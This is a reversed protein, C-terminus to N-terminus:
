TFKGIMQDLCFILYNRKIEPIRSHIVNPDNLLDAYKKVLENNFTMKLLLDSVEMFEPDINNPSMQLRVKEIIGYQVELELLLNSEEPVIPTPVQFSKSM